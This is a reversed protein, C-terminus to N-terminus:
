DEEGQDNDFVALLTAMSQDTDDAEASDILETMATRLADLAAVVRELREM